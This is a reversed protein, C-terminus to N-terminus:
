PYGKTVVPQAPPVVQGDTRNSRLAGCHEPDGCYRREPALYDKLNAIGDGPHTRGRLASEDGRQTYLTCDVETPLVWLLM